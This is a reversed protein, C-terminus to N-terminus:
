IGDSGRGDAQGRAQGAGWASEGLTRAPRFEVGKLDFYKGVQM